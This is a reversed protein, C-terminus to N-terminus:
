SKNFINYLGASIKNFTPTKLDIIFIAVLVAILAFIVWGLKKLDPIIKSIDKASEQSSIKPEPTKIKDIKKTESKDSKQPQVTQIPSPLNEVTQVHPVPRNGSQFSQAKRIREQFLKKLKKRDKKKKSM